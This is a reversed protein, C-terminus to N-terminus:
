FDFFDDLFAAGLGAGVLEEGIEGTVAEGKVKRALEYFGVSGVGVSEKLVGLEAMSVVAVEADVTRQEAAM